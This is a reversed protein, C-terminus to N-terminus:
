GGQSGAIGLAMQLIGSITSNFEEQTETALLRDLVGDVIALFGLIQQTSEPSRTDPIQALKVKADAVGEDWSAALRKPIWKGEVRVFEEDRPDEGPSQVRVTAIDEGEDVLEASVSKWDNIEDVADPSLESILQLQEMLNAVTGGMFAEIDLTRLQEPSSIESRVLTSFVKVLADYSAEKDAASELHAAIEPRDILFERKEDLVQVFKGLTLFTQTWLQEDVQGAFGHVLEDLDQQYTEPLAQWLVQPRNQDLEDAIWLVTGDASKPPQGVACSCVLLTSLFLLIGFRYALEAPKTQIM